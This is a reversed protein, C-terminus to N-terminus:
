KTISEYIFILEGTVTLLPSCPSPDLGSGGRQSPTRPSDEARDSRDRGARYEGRGTSFLTYCKQLKKIYHNPIFM